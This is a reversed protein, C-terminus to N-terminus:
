VGGALTRMVTLRAAIRAAIAAIVPTALLILLDITDLSLAPLLGTREANSQMLFIALAATGLAAVAGASGARLAMLWFRREFLRSIFRDEAGALHLVDVIDRRALLAAHTAFAIVALATAGLLLVVAYAAWRVVALTRRVDDSWSAHVDAVGDIGAEALRREIRPAILDDDPDASVEIILPIPLGAPLGGSGFSPALLAEVEGASLLRAARVGDTAAIIDRAEDGGRRDTGQLRVTMEGEVQATWSAAASYTARASLAALSALFCLAFIVFVLATERADDVPILPAPQSM